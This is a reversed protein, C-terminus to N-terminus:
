QSFFACSVIQLQFAFGAARLGGDWCLAWYFTVLWKRFHAVEEQSGQACARLKNECAVCATVLTDCTRMLHTMILIDYGSFVIERLAAKCRLCCHPKYMSNNHNPCSNHFQHLCALLAWQSGTLVCLLSWQTSQTLVFACKGFCLRIRAVAWRGCQSKPRRELSAIFCVIWRCSIFVTCFSGQSSIWWQLICFLATRRM